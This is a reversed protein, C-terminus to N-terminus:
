DILVTLSPSVDHSIFDSRTRADKNKMQQKQLKKSYRAILGNIPIMLVMAAVGALMSLGVLQHLSVLCLVIQLPASWLQQGYQALDQLRLTDVAMLSVIDGSSQSARGENSLKMSKSYIAATLASKVRMGTEFARQFYQHLFLTQTLSVAFMALAIAVGRIVPQPTPSRYSNVFNILLRLLQPQVFALFDSVTKFLAGRFYPGSFGRFLALWMSPYKKTREHKWAEQFTDGTAGATDRHRLNWLDDETLYSTYGYKMMPTMWSFTLISFVDAHDLPCEDEDGIAEYASAQKPMLWELLFEAGALAFSVCFTVFFPLHVKYIQQSVLSRLKVAYAILLFLWYFLVVGNSTRLRTHELVQISFIVM